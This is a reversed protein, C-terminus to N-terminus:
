SRAISLFAAALTLAFQFGSWLRQKRTTHVIANQLLYVAQLSPIVISFYVMFGILQRIYEEVGVHTHFPSSMGIYEWLASYALSSFILLLLDGLADQVLHNLPIEPLTKHPPKLRSIEPLFQTKTSQMGSMAVFIALFVAEKIMILFFGAVYLLQWYVPANGEPQLGALQAGIIFLFGSMGLHVMPLFYIALMLGTLPKHPYHEAYHALVQYKLLFGALELFPIILFIWGILPDPTALSAGALRRLLVPHLVILYGIFLLYFFLGRNKLLRYTLSPILAMTFFNSHAV